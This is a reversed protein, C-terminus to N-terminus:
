NEKRPSDGAAEKQDASQSSVSRFMPVMSLISHIDFKGGRAVRVLGAVFAAAIILLMPKAVLFAVLVGLITTAGIGFWQSSAVGFAVREKRLEPLLTPDGIDPVRSRFVTPLAANAASTGAVPQKFHGDIQTGAFTVSAINHADLQELFDSYRIMTPSGRMEVIGYVV